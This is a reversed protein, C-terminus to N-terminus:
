SERYGVHGHVTHRGGREYGISFMISLFVFFLNLGMCNWLTFLAANTNLSWGEVGHTALWGEEGDEGDLVVEARAADYEEEVSV